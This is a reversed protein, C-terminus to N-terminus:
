LKIFITIGFLVEMDNAYVGQDYKRLSDSGSYENPYIIEASSGKTLSGSAVRATTGM